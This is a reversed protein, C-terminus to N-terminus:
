GGSGFWLLDRTTLLSGNIVSRFDLILFRRLPPFNLMMSPVIGNQRVAYVVLNPQHVHALRDLCGHSGLAGRIVPM